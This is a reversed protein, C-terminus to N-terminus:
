IAKEKRKERREERRKERREQREQKTKPDPSFLNLIQDIVNDKVFPECEPMPESNNELHFSGNTYPKCTNDKKCNQMFYAWIPLAM